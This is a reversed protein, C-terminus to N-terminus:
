KVKQNKFHEAYEVRQGKKEQKVTKKADKMKPHADYYRVMRDSIGEPYVGRRARYLLTYWVHENTTGPQRGGGGRGSM